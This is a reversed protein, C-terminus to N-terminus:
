RKTFRFLGRTPQHQTYLNDPGDFHTYEFDYTHALNRMAPENPFLYNSLGTARLNNKDQPAITPFIDSAFEFLPLANEIQSMQTEIYVVGDAELFSCLIRMAAFVDPLHYLVGLLFIVDFRRNPNWSCFDATVIEPNVGWVSSAYRLNKPWTSWDKDLSTVSRAGAMLAGISFFGDNAGIDLVRKGALGGQEPIQLGSWMKFQLDPDVAAGKIRTGDPLPMSHWWFPSNNPSEVLLSYSKQFFPEM